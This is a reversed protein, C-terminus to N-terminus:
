KRRMSWSARCRMLSWQRFERDIQRRDIISGPIDTQLTCPLLCSPMMQCSCLADYRSSSSAAGQQQQQSARSVILAPGQQRPGFPLVRALDADRRNGARQPPLHPCHPAGSGRGRGRGQRQSASRAAPSAPCPVVAARSGGGDPRGDCVDAGGDYM